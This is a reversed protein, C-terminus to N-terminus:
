CRACSAIHASLLTLAVLHKRIIAISVSIASLFRSGWNGSSTKADIGAQGRSWVTGYVRTITANQMRDSYFALGVNLFYPLSSNPQPIALWTCGSFPPPLLCNGTRALLFSICAVQFPFAEKHGYYGDSYSVWYGIQKRIMRPNISPGNVSM